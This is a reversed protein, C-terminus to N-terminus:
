WLSEEGASVGTLAPRNTPAARAELQTRITAMQTRTLPYFLIALIGILFGIPQTIVLALIWFGITEPTQTTLSSDFGSAVLLMGQFVLTVSLAIKDTGTYVAGLFGERRTGHKWEDYDCIDAIMSNTIMPMTNTFVGILIATVISPWQMFLTWSSGALSFTHRVFSAEDNTFTWQLSVYAVASMALLLLLTPKKGLRSSLSAIPAMAIFNAINIGNFFVALLAAGVLQEGRGIHYVFVYYFFIGTIAMGFRAIFNGTLLLLFPRNDAILKVADVFRVRDVPSTVVTRERCFLSPVGTFLIVAGILFAVPIVGQSGRTIQAQDGEFWMCLPIYWPTLFGAAAFSIFRWKFIHTREDYDTTMEYGMAYHPVNFLTYGVAMLLTVMVTLYLFTRWDTQIADGARTWWTTETPAAPQQLNRVAPDLGDGTAIGTAAAATSTPTPPSLPPYWLLLGCLASIVLGVLLWPRRRGWRSRTNDSLHGVLPDSFSDLLRPIACALGVLVANVGLANVYVANVMGFLGYIITADTFGGLGWM